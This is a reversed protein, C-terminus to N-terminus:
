VMDGDGNPINVHRRRPIGVHQAESPHKTIYRCQHCRAVVGHDCEEGDISVVRFGPGTLIDDGHPVKGEAGVARSELISLNMQSLAADIKPSLVEADAVRNEEVVWITVFYLDRRVIQLSFVVGM